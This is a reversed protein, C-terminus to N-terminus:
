LMQLYRPYEYASALVSVIIWHVAPAMLGVTALIKLDLFCMHHLKQKKVSNVHMLVISIQCCHIRICHHVNVSIVCTLKWSTHSSSSIGLETCRFETPNQLWWVPKPGSGCNLYNVSEQQRFVVIGMLRLQQQYPSSLWIYPHKIQNICLIFHLRQM